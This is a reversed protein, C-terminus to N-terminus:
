PQVLMTGRLTQEAIKPQRRDFVSKKSEAKM